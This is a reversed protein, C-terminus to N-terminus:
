IVAESELHLEIRMVVSEIAGVSEIHLLFFCSNSGYDAKCSVSM